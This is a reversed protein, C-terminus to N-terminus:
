RGGHYEDGGSADDLISYPNWDDDSNEHKAKGNENEKPKYKLCNKCTTWEWESTVRGRITKGCDTVSNDSAVLKKKMHHAVRELPNEVKRTM